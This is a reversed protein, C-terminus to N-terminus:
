RSWAAAAAEPSLVQPRLWLYTSAVRYDMAVRPVTRNADASRSCCAPSPLLPASLRHPQTSATAGPWTLGGAAATCHTLARQVAPAQAQYQSSLSRQKGKSVFVLQGRWLFVGSFFCVRDLERGATCQSRM